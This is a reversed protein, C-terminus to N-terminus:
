RSGTFLSTVLKGPLWDAPDIGQSTSFASLRYACDIRRPASIRRQLRERIVSRMEEAKPSAFQQVQGYHGVRGFRIKVTWDNLLDKGVTIEYRRHHNRQPNHAELVINLLNDM